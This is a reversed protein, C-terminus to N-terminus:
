AFLLFVDTGGHGDSSAEFHTGHPSFLRLTDTVGGSDITLHHNAKHYTATAGPHFHLGTLDLIDHKGFSDIPNSFHHSSFTANELKLTAKGKGTFTIAGFGAAGVAALDFTGGVLKTGGSYTNGAGALTLTGHGVKVLSGGIMPAIGDDIAGSVEGSLVTLQDAGLVYTGAGALSGVTLKHDGAPGASQSFDVKGGAETILQAKGGTSSGFFNIFALSLTHITANGASSDDWFDIFFRNEIHASGATSLEFFQVPLDATISATGATSANFFSLEGTIAPSGGKNTIIGAGLFDIGGVFLTFSYQSADTDFIWEGVELFGGTVVSVNFVSSPGFVAGDFAGPVQTNPNWNSATNYTNSGPDWTIFSM